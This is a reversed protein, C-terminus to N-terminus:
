WDNLRKCDPRALNVGGRLLPPLIQGGLITTHVIPEVEHTSVRGYWIGAGQPMYIIVNGAYKHGGIHSTPENDLEQLRRNLEAEKEQGDAYHELPPGNPDDLHTHVEWGERELTESFAYELKPAVIACRADRKRHSCILIVCAYPIVWSNVSSSGSSSGARPVSPNVSNRWLDRAGDLSRPVEAVVKYDPFILVTEHDCDKSLTDPAHTESDKFIGAVANPLNLTTSNPTGPLTGPTSFGTLTTPAAGEIAALYSALSGDWDSKGTSIVVQRRYPRVSGLMESTM